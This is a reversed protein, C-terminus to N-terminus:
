ARVCKRARGSHGPRQRSAARIMGEPIAPKGDVLYLGLRTELERLRANDAATRNSGRKRVIVAKEVNRPDAEDLHADACHLILDSEGTLEIDYRM